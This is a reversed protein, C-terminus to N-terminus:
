NRENDQDPDLKFIKAISNQDILERSSLASDFEAKADELLDAFNYRMIHDDLSQNRKKEPPSESHTDM